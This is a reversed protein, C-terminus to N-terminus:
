KNLVRKKWENYKENMCIACPRYGVLIATEEDSFFVRNKVYYGNKIYRLASRCDFRGYIKLKKNGAITGPIKSLYENGNYDLLKYDYNGYKIFNDKVKNLLILYRDKTDTDSLLYERSREQSNIYDPVEGNFQNVTLDVINGNVLNFYHSIEGFICQMIKGGMFDNVILATVDCQGLSPNFRNRLQQSSPYCSEVSWSEEVIRQLEDLKM